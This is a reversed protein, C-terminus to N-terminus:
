KKSLEIRDMVKEKAKCTVPDPEVYRPANGVINKEGIVVIEWETDFRCEKGSKLKARFFGKGEYRNNDDKHQTLTMEFELYTPNSGDVLHVELNQGTLRLNYRTGSASEWTGNPNNKTQGPVQGLVVGCSVLLLAIKLLNKM